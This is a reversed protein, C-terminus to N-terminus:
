EKKKEKEKKSSAGGEKTAEKGEKADKDGGAAGGEKGDVIETVFNNNTYVCIEAAIEMAKKAIQEADMDDRDLM